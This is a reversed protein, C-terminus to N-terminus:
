SPQYFNLGPIDDFDEVNRTVLTLDLELATAAIVLDLARANVRKNQLRLTERLQACREAVALSFPLVPVSTVFTQFKEKAEVRNSSRELGQFVEMYTIISIAIGEEALRELLQIAAPNSELLDIVLNSDILYPM